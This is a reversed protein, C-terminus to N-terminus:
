VAKKHKPVSSERIVLETDLEVITQRASPHQINEILLRVAEDAIAELPQRIYSVPPDFLEFADNEDFSLVSIQM